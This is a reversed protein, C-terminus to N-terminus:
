FSPHNRPAEPTDAVNQKKVLSTTAHTNISHFAMLSFSPTDRSLDPVLCPTRVM